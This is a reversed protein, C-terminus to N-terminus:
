KFTKVPVAPLLTIEIRRNLARGDVSRNSKLPDFSGFGAASLRHGPVGQKALLRVVVTARHGSLAWNDAYKRGSTPVNDTHGAVQFHRNIPKLIMALDELAQEGDKTLKAKGSSFLIKSRMQIVLKGHRNILQLKGASIMKSFSHRLKANLERQRRMEAKIKELEALAWRSRKLEGMKRELEAAQRRLLAQKKLLAEGMNEKTEALEKRVNALASKVKAIEADLEGIRQKRAAALKESASLQQMLSKSKALQKEFDSKYCGTGAFGGLALLAAIMACAKRVIHRM